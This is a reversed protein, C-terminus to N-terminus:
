ASRKALVRAIYPKMPLDSKAFHELFWFQLLRDARDKIYSFPFLANEQDVQSVMEDLMVLLRRHQDKHEQVTPYRIAQLLREERAFHTVTLEKLERLLRSADDRWIDDTPLNIFRQVLNYQRHHDNDIEPQGLDWEPRWSAGM